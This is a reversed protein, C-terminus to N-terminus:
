GERLPRLMRLQGMVLIGERLALLLAALAPIWYLETRGDLVQETRDLNGPTADQLMPAASAGATRHVYPVGLQDAIKRLQDEDIKSIADRSEGGTRDKIYGAESDDAAGTNERMKGGEPTGYGLVAGGDVLSTEVGLPAPREASTQEGDGLYYVIRPREPHSEKAAQLRTQLVKGAMTVSSGTSYNTVQPGLISTVTTLASSDVTLPMRVSASSDFTIVSYRAGSLEGAISLIDAKVGQMRPESSGFDEAVMSSTTDVVFFVNLNSAAASLHGGPLGPRLAALILLIVLGGRFLWDRVDARRTAARGPSGRGISGRQLMRFVLVTSAVFVLGLMWWPAIPNFTM